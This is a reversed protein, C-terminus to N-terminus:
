RRVDEPLPPKGHGTKNDRLLQVLADLDENSQVAGAGEKRLKENGMVRQTITGFVQTFIPKGLAQARAVTDLTSSPLRAEIVLVARAGAAVLRNRALSGQSSWDAGPPQESLWVAREALERFTSIGVRQLPSFDFHDAGCGPIIITRGGAELAGLHASIDVGEAYGSIVTLGQRALHQAYERARRSSTVTCERSGILAVSLDDAPQWDGVLYIVPPPNVAQRLFAPYHNDLKTMVRMGLRSLAALKVQTAALTQGARCLAEATPADMQPIERIQDVPSELARKISGFRKLLEDFLAGGVGETAALHAWYVTEEM